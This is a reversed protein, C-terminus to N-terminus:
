LSPQACHLSPCNAHTPPNTHELETATDKFATNNPQLHLACQVARQAEQVCNYAHLAYAYNNWAEAMTPQQQLLISYETIAAQAQADQLLANALGFRALPEEPWRTVATRYAQQAATLQKASELRTIAQIYNLPQATAPLTRPPLVVRGWRESRQWTTDFLRLPTQRRPQDGSRLIVLQQELDYGIVVAFHWQPYWSVGLNQLILVPHGANVEQLLGDISNVPYSVFGQRRAAMDLEVPFSGEAKPTFAHAALQEPTVTMGYLNLVMALSAPGCQFDAQQIFPTATIEAKPTIQQRVAPSLLLKSNLACGALLLSLGLVFPKM